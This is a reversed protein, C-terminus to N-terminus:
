KAEYNKVITSLSLGGEGELSKYYIGNKNYCTLNIYNLGDFLQMSLGSYEDYDKKYYQLSNIKCPIYLTDKSPPTTFVVMLNVSDRAEVAGSSTNFTKAKRFKSLFVVGSVQIKTAASDTNYSIPAIGDSTAYLDTLAHYIAGLEQNTQNDVKACSSFLLPILILVIPTFNKM